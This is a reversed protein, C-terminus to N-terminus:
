RPAVRVGEELKDSPHRIVRSGEALGRTVEVAQRGQHGLDIEALRARGNVVQFAYWKGGRRFIASAPVTLIRDGRWIMIRVDVRFGDGLRGPWQVFRGVVNVRREEVGLASVKTFASPDIRHVVARLPEPGGWNEIVMTDGPAVKVADISLPDTVVELDARSGIEVLPTGAAVVRESPELVQLVTGRAPSRVTVQASSTPALAARAGEVEHAATQVRFDAAQLEERRSTEALVAREREEVAIVGRQELSEARRRTRVAQELAARAETVAAMATRRADEAADLRARAEARSRVDLPQGAVVAVTAGQTVTDGERLAIRGLRGSVPSAVVYRNRIRTFGEEDITIELPGRTVAATDVLIPKPRVAWVAAAAVAVLAALGGLRKTTRTM